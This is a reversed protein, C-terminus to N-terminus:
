KNNSLDLLNYVLRSVATVHDFDLKFIIFVCIYKHPFTGDIEPYTVFHHSKNLNLNITSLAVKLLIETIAHHSQHIKTTFSM